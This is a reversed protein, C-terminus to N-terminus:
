AVMAHYCIYDKHMHGQKGVCSTKCCGSMCGHADHAVRWRLVCCTCLSSENAPLRPNLLLLVLRPLQQALVAIFM